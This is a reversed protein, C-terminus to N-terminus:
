RNLTQWCTLACGLTLFALHISARREYRVTLRRYRNLWALTREVVWRHRGLRERSEIGKRAIRPVIGRQRCAVRCFAYDYGKDAHLKLPRRRPRGPKGRVPAIADLTAELQKSDHVNAATLTVALPTGARDVVVHRKSGPKGRDTPNPGTAEGGKQGGRAGLGARRAVLRTERSRASAAATRPAAAGVRRSTALRASTALLDYRQWLGVRPAADGM